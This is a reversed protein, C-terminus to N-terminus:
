SNAVPPGKNSFGQLTFKYSGIYYRGGLVSALAVPKLVTYHHDTLLSVAHHNHIYHCVECSKVLKQVSIEHKNDLKLLKEHHHFIQFVSVFLFIMLMLMTASKKFIEQYTYGKKLDSCFQV